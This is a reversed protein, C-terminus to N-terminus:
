LFHNENLQSQAVAPKSAQPLKKQAPYTAYLRQWAPSTLQSQIPSEGRRKFHGCLRCFKDMLDRMEDGDGALQSRGTQTGGIRDIGGAIACPYYGRSTLGVGCDKLIQCGNRFDAHLYPKVDIPAINFSAFATQEKTSSKHTNVVIVDKPISNLITNVRAGHGNTAVEIRTGVSNEDRYKRILELVALFQPHLTPEGGLLRIRKWKKKTAISQDIFSKIQELSIHENSRAQPSSRNCNNCSLNCAYTLDIEILDKSISYEFGLLRTVWGRTRLYSWERLLWTKFNAIQQRM